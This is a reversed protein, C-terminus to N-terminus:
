QHSLQTILYKELNNYKKYDNPSVIKLISSVFISIRLDSDLEVLQSFGGDKLSLKQLLTRTQNANEIEEGLSDLIKIAIYTPLVNSPEKIVIGYGCDPNRLKKIYKILFQKDLKFDLNDKESLQNLEFVNNVDLLNFSEEKMLLENVEGNIYNIYNIIKTKYPQLNYDVLDSIQILNLIYGGNAVNTFLTDDLKLINDLSFKLQSQKSLDVGLKNLIFLARYTPLLQDKNIMNDKNKQKKDILSYSFSGNAHQLQEVYQIIAEKESNNFQIDPLAVYYFLDSLVDFRDGKHIIDKVNIQPNNHLQQYEPDIIHLVKTSYYTSYLDVKSDVHAIERFGGDPNQTKEIIDLLETDKEYTFSKNKSTTETSPINGLVTIAFLPLIIIIVITLTRIVKKNIKMKIGAKKYKQNCGDIQDLQAM